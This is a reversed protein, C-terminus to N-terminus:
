TVYIDFFLLVKVHMLNAQRTWCCSLRLFEKYGGTVSPEPSLFEKHSNDSDGIKNRQRLVVRSNKEMKSTRSIARLGMKKLSVAVLARRLSPYRKGFLEDQLRGAHLVTLEEQSDVPVFTLTTFGPRPAPIRERLRFKAKRKLAINAVSNPLLGQLRPLTVLPSTIEAICKPEELSIRATPFSIASVSCALGKSM